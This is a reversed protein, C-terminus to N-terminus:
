AAVRARLATLESVIEHAAVPDPHRDPHWRYILGRLERGLDIATAPNKDERSAALDDLLEDREAELDGIRELLAAHALDYDEAWTCGPWRSCGLFLGADDRRRRLRLAAGCSPCEVALRVPRATM